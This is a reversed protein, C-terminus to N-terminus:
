GLYPWAAIQGFKLYQEMDKVSPNALAALGFTQMATFRPVLTLNGHYKQKFVKGPFHLPVFISCM